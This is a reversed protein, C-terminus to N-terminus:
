KAKRRSSQIEDPDFKIYAKDTIMVRSDGRDAAEHIMNELQGEEMQHLVEGMKKLEYIESMASAIRFFAYQREDYM